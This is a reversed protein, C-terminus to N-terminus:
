KVCILIAKHVYMIWVFSPGEFGLWPSPAEEEAPVVVGARRFHSVNRTVRRRGRAATIMAGKVGIVEWVKPEFTTRFKGGERRNKMVVQDGERFDRYKARRKGSVKQNTIERSIKDRLPAAREELWLAELARLRSRAVGSGEGGPSVGGGVGNKM